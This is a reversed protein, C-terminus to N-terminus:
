FRAGSRTQARRRDPAAGVGSESHPVANEADADVVNEDNRRRKPGDVFRTAETGAFHRQETPFESNRSEFGGGLIAELREEANKPPNNGVRDPQRHHSPQRVDPRPGVLKEGGLRHGTRESKRRVNELRRRRRQRRRRQRIDLVQRRQEHRHGVVAILLLIVKM